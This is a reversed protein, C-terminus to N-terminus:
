KKMWLSFHGKNSGLIFGRNFVGISTVSLDFIHQSFVHAFNRKVEYNNGVPGIMFLEGRETGLLIKTKDFWSHATFIRNKPLKKV